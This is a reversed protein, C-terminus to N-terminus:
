LPGRFFLMLLTIMVMVFLGYALGITWAILLVLRILQWAIQKFSWEAPTADGESESSITVPDEGRDM